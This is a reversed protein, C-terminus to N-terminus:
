GALVAKARKWFAIREQLGATGGNIRKTITKFDENDNDNSRDDAL